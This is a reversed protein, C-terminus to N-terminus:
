SANRRAHYCIRTGLNEYYFLRRAKKAVLFIDCSEMISRRFGFRDCYMVYGSVEQGSPVKFRWSLNSSTKADTIATETITERMKAIAITLGSCPTSWPDCDLIAPLVEVLWVDITREVSVTMVIMVSVAEVVIVSVRVVKIGTEEVTVDNEVSCCSALVVKLVVAALELEEVLLVVV